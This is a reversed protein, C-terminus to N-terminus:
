GSAGGFRFPHVRCKELQNEAACHAVPPMYVPLTVLAVAPDLSRGTCL